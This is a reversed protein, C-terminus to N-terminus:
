PGLLWTFRLSRVNQSWPGIGQLVLLIASIMNQLIRINLHVKPARTEPSKRIAQVGTHGIITVTFWLFLGVPMHKAATPDLYRDSPMILARSASPLLYLPGALPLSPPFPHDTIGGLLTYKVASYKVQLKM